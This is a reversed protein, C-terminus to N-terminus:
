VREGLAKRFATSLLVLPTAVRMQIGNIPLTQLTLDAM